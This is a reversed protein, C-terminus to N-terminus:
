RPELGLDECVEALTGAADFLTEAAQRVKAKDLLKEAKELAKRMDKIQLCLSITDGQKLLKQKISM